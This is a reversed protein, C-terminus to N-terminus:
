WGLYAYAYFSQIKLDSNKLPFIIKYPLLGVLITIEHKRPPHFNDPYMMCVHYLIGKVKTPVTGKVQIIFLSSLDIYTGKPESISRSSKLEQGKSLPSCFVSVSFWKRRRMSHRHRHRHSLLFSLSLFPFPIFPLLGGKTSVRLVLKDNRKIRSLWIIWINTIPYKGKGEWM